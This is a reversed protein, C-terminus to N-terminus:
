GAVFPVFTRLDLGGPDPAFRATVIKDSDVVVSISESDGVVDGDWGVFEYGEVPVATLVVQTGSECGDVVCALPESVITGGSTPSVSPYLHYSPLPVDVIPVYAYNDIQCEGYAIRFWGNEGWGRGWSNKAIWYGEEDDYGVVTVAHGGRLDGSTHRYVGGSYLFFDSYVLMTAEFPGDDALTQKMDAQNTLGVWDDLRTVRDEWDPCLTCTQESVDYPYCPEDTIGTDRASDLAANPYWGKACSAGSNCFFLHAESLDADLTPDSLGIELRSEIAGTTAFAVCAGCTGQNRVPTTWDAGGFTRWDLTTQYDYNAGLRVGAESAQEEEWEMVEMPVGLLVDLDDFGSDLAEPDTSPLLDGDPEETTLSVTQPVTPGLAITQTLSTFLTATVTEAQWLPDEGCAAPDPSETQAVAPLQLFVSSATALLVAVILGLSLRIRV